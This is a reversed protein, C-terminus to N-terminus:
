PNFPTLYSSQHMLEHVGIKKLRFQNVSDKPISLTSGNLVDVFSVTDYDKFWYGKLIEATTKLSTEILEESPPEKESAPDVPVVVLSFTFDKKSSDFNGQISRLNIKHSLEQDKQVDERIRREILEALFQPLTYSELYFRDNEPIINPYENFTQRIAQEIIKGDKDVTYKPIIREVPRPYLNAEIVFLYENEFGQPFINQLSVFNQRPAYYEKTKCLVLSKTEQIRKTEVQLLQYQMTDPLAILSTPFLMTTLEQPTINKSYHQEFVLEAKKTSLEAFFQRCTNEGMIEPNFRLDRIVRRFYESRPIDLLRVRKIDLFYGTLVLEAATVPDQAILSYFQVEDKRSSLGVRQLTLAVQQMQQLRDPVLNLASDVLNTVTYTVGLTSDKLKSTAEISYEDKLIRIM